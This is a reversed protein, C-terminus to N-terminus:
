CVHCFETVKIYDEKTPVFNAKVKAAQLGSKTATVAEKGSSTAYLYYTVGAAAVAGLGLYLGTSSSKAGDSPPPTSYTRNFNSRFAARTNLQVAATRLPKSAVTRFSARFINFSM